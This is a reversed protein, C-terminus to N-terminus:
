GHKVTELYKQRFNEMVRDRDSKPLNTIGKYYEIVRDWSVTSGEKSEALKRKQFLWRIGACISVEPEMLDQLDINIYNEKIEGRENKLSKATSDTIQMLGRVRDKGRLIRRVPQNKFSSESAILAKVLNPDLHTAPKLVENWYLTWGFIFKNWEDHSEFNWFGRYFSDPLLLDSIHRHGIELIEDRYLHDKKSRNVRCFGGVEFEKGSQSHSKHSSVWHQGLPCIRWPHRQQQAIFAELGKAFRKKIRQIERAAREKRRVAAPFKRLIKEVQAVFEDNKTM